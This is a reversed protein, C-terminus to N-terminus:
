METEVDAGLRLDRVSASDFLCLQKADRKRILFATSTTTYDPGGFPHRESKVMLEGEVFERKFITQESQVPGVCSELEELASFLVDNSSSDRLEVGLLFESALDPTDLTPNNDDIHGWLGALAPSGVHQCLRDVTQVAKCGFEGRFEDNLMVWLRDLTLAGSEDRTVDVCADFFSTGMWSSCDSDITLWQRGTTDSEWEIQEWDTNAECQELRQTHFLSLKSGDSKRILWASASFPSLQAQEDMAALEQKTLTIGLDLLNAIDYMEASRHSTREEAPACKNLQLVNTVVPVDTGTVMVAVEVLYQGRVDGLAEYQENQKDKARRALM